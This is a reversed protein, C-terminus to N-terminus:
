SSRNKRKWCKNFKGIMILSELEDFEKWSKGLREETENVADRKLINDINGKCM